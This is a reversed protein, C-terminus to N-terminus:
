FGIYKVEESLNIDLKEKATMKIIDILKRVDSATAKGLNVIFNAHKKSIMAYGETLGKLGLEDIVQGASYTSGKKFVSGCSPKALPQSKVRKEAIYKLRSLINERNDKELKFKAKIIIDSIGSYRYSFDIESASIEKINGKKDMISLSILFDSITRGYCGANGALAGGITGPIGTLEELGSLENNFCFSILRSVRLGADAEITLGDQVITSLCSSLDLVVGRYGRDSVLLNSGKGIVFYSIENKELFRIIASLEGITKPVLYYDAPGGIKYSTHKALLENELVVQCITNFNFSNSM